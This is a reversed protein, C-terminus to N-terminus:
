GGASTELCVLRTDEDAAEDSLAARAAPSEWEPGAVVVFRAFRALHPRARFGYRKALTIAEEVAAGLPEAARPDRRAELAARAGAEIERLFARWGEERFADLQANRIVLM